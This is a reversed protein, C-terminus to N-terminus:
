CSRLEGAIIEVARVIEEETNDVGVSFRISSLAEKPSLGMALLVHSPAAKGSHCAAAASAAIKDKLKELLAAANVGPLTVNLTNALTKVPDGNIRAGPIKERLKAYLLATLKRAHKVRRDIDPRALECAKGLAAIHIVNETGPALGQEQGAGFVIPILGIGRRVYLAGVGKPAYLKHGAITMMDVAPANVDVPTKGVSQAADTHLIVGHSCSLRSIEGLPQLAGTENNSHMVSILIADPTLANKVDEAVVRGGSDVPIPVVQFGRNQLHKLPNSVSPHEVASCIIRGSAFRNVFGMIALNNSFTGGSTFIIEDPRANILRAVQERANEVVRRAELGLAHTSSPNAFVDAAQTVAERVEPLLPTTANHDLYIM